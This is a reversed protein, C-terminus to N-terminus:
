EMREDYFDENGDDRYKRVAASRPLANDDSEEGEGNSHYVPRKHAPQLPHRKHKKKQKVDSHVIILSKISIQSLNLGIASLVALVGYLKPWESHLLTLALKCEIGKYDVRMERIAAFSELSTNWNESGCYWACFVM